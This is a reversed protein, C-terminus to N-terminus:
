DISGMNINCSNVAHLCTLTPWPLDAYRYTNVSHKKLFTTDHLWIGAFHPLDIRKVVCLPAVDLWTLTALLSVVFTMCTNAACSLTM